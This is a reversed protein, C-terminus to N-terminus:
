QEIHNNLALTTLVVVLTSVPCTVQAVLFTPVVFNSEVNYISIPECVVINYAFTMKCMQAKKIAKQIMSSMFPGIALLLDPQLGQIFM